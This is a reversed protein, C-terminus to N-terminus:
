QICLGFGSFGFILNSYRRVLLPDVISPAFLIFCAIGM